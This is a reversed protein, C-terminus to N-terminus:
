SNRGHSSKKPAEGTRRTYEVTVYDIVDTAAASAVLTEWLNLLADTRGVGHGADSVYPAPRDKDLLMVHTYRDAEVPVLWQLAFRNM